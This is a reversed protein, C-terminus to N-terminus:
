WVRIMGYEICCHGVYSKRFGLCWFGLGRFGSAQVVWFGLVGFGRLGWVRVRFGWLGLVM